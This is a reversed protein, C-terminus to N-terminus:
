VIGVTGWMYPVSYRNEPDFPLDLYKEDILSINPVNEYNIEALLDESILKEIIYDSPFIVDYSDGGPSTIKTYLDENTEFM